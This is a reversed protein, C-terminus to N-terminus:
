CLALRFFSLACLSCQSHSRTNEKSNPIETLRPTRPRDQFSRSTEYRSTHGDEFGAQFSSREESRKQRPTGPVPLDPYSKRLTPPAKPSRTAHPDLNRRAMGANSPHIAAGNSPTEARTTVSDEIDELSIVDVDEALNDEVLADRARLDEDISTTHDERPRTPPEFTSVFSTGRDLLWKM